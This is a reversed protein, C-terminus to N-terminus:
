SNLLEVMKDIDQSEMCNFHNLPCKDYGLKSCPRCKLNKIEFIYYNNQKGPMYPYMGFQPITNGWVSIIKKNFAAAIHMLGTDNTLVFKSQKIISATQSINYKGCANYCNNNKIKAIIQKSKEIENKGGLLIVAKNLKNILNIIKNEPLAKTNYTASLVISIFGNNLYAPLDNVNVYDKEDIFYDLGKNDNHIKLKKVAEFYRDVIHKEPLLNIKFNVLIYKEINLKNFTYVTTKLSKKILFSRLNKHLDIIYDFNEQKLENVTSTIKKKLIHIKDIYPNAELIKKYQEKCLYHIQAKLQQKLCRVVPTTLVIDGISSFRIILIKYM